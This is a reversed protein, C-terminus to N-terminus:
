SCSCPACAICRGGAVGVRTRAALPTPLPKVLNQRVSFVLFLYYIIFFLYCIVISLVPVHTCQQPSSHLRDFGKANPCSRTQSPRPVCAYTCLGCSCHTRGDLDMDSATCHPHPARVWTVFNYAGMGKADGKPRIARWTWTNAVTDRVGFTSVPVNDVRGYLAPTMKVSPVYNAHLSLIQRACQCDCCSVFATLNM